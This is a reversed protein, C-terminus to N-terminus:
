PKNYHKIDNYYYEFLVELSEKNYNARQFPSNLKIIISNIIKNLWIRTADNKNNRNEVINAAKTLNEFILGKTINKPYEFLKLLNHNIYNNDYESIITKNINLQYYYALFLVIKDKEDYFLEIINKLFRIEDIIILNDISDLGKDERIEKYKDESLNWHKIEKRIIELCMRNLVAICYTSIKSKGQFSNFIRTRKILFKEVIAMQVDEKERRPIHKNAIFRNVVREAYQLLDNDSVFTNDSKTSNTLIQM